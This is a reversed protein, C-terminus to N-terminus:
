SSSPALSIWEGTDPAIGLIDDLARSATIESLKRSTACQKLSM